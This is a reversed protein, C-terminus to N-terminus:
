YSLLPSSSSPDQIINILASYPYISDYFCGPKSKVQYQGSDVRTTLSYRGEINILSVKSALHKRGLSMQM